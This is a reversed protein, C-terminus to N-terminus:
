TRYMSKTASNKINVLSDELRDVIEKSTYLEPKDKYGRVLGLAMEIGMSIGDVYNPEKM